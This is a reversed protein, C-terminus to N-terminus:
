SNEELLQKKLLILDYINVEGDQNWDAATFQEETFIEEKQLYKKLAIIDEVSLQNEAPLEEPALEEIEFKQQERNEAFEAVSVNGPRNNLDMELASESCQPRFYFVNGIKYFSFRQNEGANDEWTLVNSDSGDQASDEVGLCSGDLLSTIQYSGDDQREFKWFQSSDAQEGMGAANGNDNTLYWGSIHNRIKGYFVEGFDAPEQKKYWEVPQNHYAPRVVSLVTGCYHPLSVKRTYLTSASSTNGGVSKLSSLSTGSASYVIEVHGKYFVIDGPQPSSTIVKGGASIIRSKLGTVQGYRPVAASQGALDACDSVFDACWEETYGLQKGTKGTQAVAVNLIDQAGIGTITYDTSFNDKRSQTASVQMQPCFIGTMFLALGFCVSVIKKGYKM